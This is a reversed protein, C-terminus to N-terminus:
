TDTMGEMKRERRGKKYRRGGGRVEQRDCEWSKEERGRRGM